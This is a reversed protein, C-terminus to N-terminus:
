RPRRGFRAVWEVRLKDAPVSEGRLLAQCIEITPALTMAQWGRRCEEASPALEYETVGGGEDFTVRVRNV